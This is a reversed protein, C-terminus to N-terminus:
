GRKHNSVARHSKYVHRAYKKERARKFEYSDIVRMKLTMSSRLMCYIFSIVEHIVYMYGPSIM